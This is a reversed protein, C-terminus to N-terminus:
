PESNRLYILSRITQVYAHAFSHVTIDQKLHGTAGSHLKACRHQLLLGVKVEGGWAVAAM